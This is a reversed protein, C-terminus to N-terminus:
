PRQSNRIIPRQNTEADDQTFQQLEAANTDTKAVGKKQFCCKENRKAWMVILGIVALLLLVIIVAIIILMVQSTGELDLVVLDIEKVKSVLIRDSSSERLHISLKHTLVEEEMQVNNIILAVEFRDKAVEIMPQSEYHEMTIPENAVPVNTSSGDRSQILWVIDNHDPKPEADFQVTIVLRDGVEVSSPSLKVSLDGIYSIDLNLHEEGQFLLQDLADFQQYICVLSKERHERSATYNITNAISEHGQPDEEAIPTINGPGLNLNEDNDGKVMWQFSGQPWGKRANCTVNVSQGECISLTGYIPFLELIPRKAVTVNVYDSFYKGSASSKLSCKWQGHYAETVSGIVISCNQTGSLNNPDAYINPDETCERSEQTFLCTESM